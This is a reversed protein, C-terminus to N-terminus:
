TKVKDKILTLGVATKMDVIAGNGIMDLAEAVSFERVQLVEDPDQAAAPDDTGPQRLETAVFFTMAEACFGPSPYFMALRRVLGPIRGIEEQCERVAADESHEEPELTGAPLEWLWQDVVYRYQRILLIRDPAPMPLLVVSGPHRVVEMEVTRGHPLTVRDITVDFVRGHHVLRSEHLHSTVNKM